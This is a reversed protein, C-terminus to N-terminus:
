EGVYVDKQLQPIDTNYPQNALRTAKFTLRNNWIRYEVHTDTFALNTGKVHFFGPPDGWFYKINTPTYSFVVFSGLNVGRDDYEEVLMVTNRKPIQGIKTIIPGFGAFTASGNYRTPISYSRYNIKDASSPCRYINPAKCYKWLAGAKVGAQTNVAVNTNAPDDIVWGLQGRDTAAFTSSIAPWKTPDTWDVTEAYPLTGRNDHAYMLWGTAIQRMNSMCATRNASERAKTLAPLIIGILLAIIGIVVLLEVLTFGKQRSNM